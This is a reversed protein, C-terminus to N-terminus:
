IPLPSLPELQRTKLVVERCSLRWGQGTQLWADEYRGVAFLSSRGAEDTHYLAFGSSICAKEGNIEISDVSLLRSQELTAIEWEHQDVSTLREALEARSVRMWVMKDRLEPAQTTISYEGDDSFCALYAEFDREDLCRASAHIQRTLLLETAANM